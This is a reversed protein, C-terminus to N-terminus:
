VKLFNHKFQFGKLFNPRRGSPNLIGYHFDQFYTLPYIVPAIAMKLSLFSLRFMFNKKHGNHQLFHVYLSWKEAAEPKEM